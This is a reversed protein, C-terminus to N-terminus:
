QALYRVSADICLSTFARVPTKGGEYFPGDEVVIQAASLLSDTTQGNASLRLFFTYTGPMLPLKPIEMVLTGSKSVKPLPEGCYDSRLAFMRRGQEDNVALVAYCPGLVESPEPCTFGIHFQCRDGLKITSVPERHANCVAFSALRLIGNGGIEREDGYRYIGQEDPFYDMKVSGAMQEKRYLDCGEDASGDYRVIGKELWIVRKCFKVVSGIDHSVFLITHEKKMLSEVRDLCKKQFAMDGVSLVEDLILIEPELFSAISFALRMYMGSSYRKVPTDIFKELDAFEVIRRFQADIERKSMGMISGNLYVNERGTMEPNFGTGVELLSGLRGNTRVIGKTPSTIHSLLKLLTSKGAGNKGIIGVTEGTGIDFSIDKLAWFEECTEEEIVATSKKLGIWAAAERWLVKRDLTGLHYCKSVNEVSIALPM